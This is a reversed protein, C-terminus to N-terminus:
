RFGQWDNDFLDSDDFKTNITKFMKMEFEIQLQNTAIASIIM